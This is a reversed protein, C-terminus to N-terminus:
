GNEISIHLYPWKPAKLLISLSKGTKQADQQSFSSQKFYESQADLQKSSRFKVVSASIKVM